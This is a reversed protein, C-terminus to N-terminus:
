APRSLAMSIARGNVILAGILSAAAAALAGYATVGLACILVVAVAGSGVAVGIRRANWEVVAHRVAPRGVGNAWQVGLLLAYVTLQSDYPKGYLALTAPAWVLLPVVFASSYVLATALQRLLLRRPAQVPQMALLTERCGTLNLAPLFIDVILATRAAVAYQAMQIPPAWVALVCLPGWLLLGRALGILERSDVGQLAERRIPPSGEGRAVPFARRALTAAVGASVLSGLLFAWSYLALSADSPALVVALLMSLNVAYAAVVVGLTRNAARLAEGLLSSLSVCPVALVFPLYTQLVTQLQPAQIDLDATVVLLVACLLSSRLLVRRALQMLLVGNPIGSTIARRGIIHQAMYIEYKGRLLTSLGLAIVFGRFYVGAEEPTLAHVVAWTALIQLVAGLLRLLLEGIWPHAATTSSEGRAAATEAM